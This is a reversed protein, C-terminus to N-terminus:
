LSFLKYFCGKFRYITQIMFRSHTNIQINANVRNPLFPFICQLACSPISSHAPLYITQEHMTLLTHSLPFHNPICSVCSYSTIHINSWVSPPVDNKLLSNIFSTQAYTYLLHTFHILHHLTHRLVTTLLSTSLHHGYFAEMIVPDHHIWFHEQDEYIVPLFKHYFCLFFSHKQDHRYFFTYNTLIYPDMFNHLINHWQQMYTSVDPIIYTYLSIISGHVFPSGLFVYSPTPAFNQNIGVPVNLLPWCFSSHRM